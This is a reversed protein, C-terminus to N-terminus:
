LLGYEYCLLGREYCVMNMVYCDREFCVWQYCVMNM